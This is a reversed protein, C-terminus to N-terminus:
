SAGGVAADDVAIRRGRRRRRLARRGQVARAALHIGRGDHARHRQFPQDLRARRLGHQAQGATGERVRDAGEREEGATGPARRPRRGAALVDRRVRFGEDPRVRPGQPHAAVRYPGFDVDHHAHLRGSDREERDGPRALRGGGRPQGGRDAPRAGRGAEGRRHPGDHRGLQGARQAHHPTDAPESLGAGRDAAGCRARGCALHWCRRIVSLGRHSRGQYRMM